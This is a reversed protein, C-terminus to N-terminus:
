ILRTSNYYYGQKERPVWVVCPMLDVDTAYIEPDREGDSYFAAQLAHNEYIVSQTHMIVLSPVSRIKFETVENLRGVIGAM